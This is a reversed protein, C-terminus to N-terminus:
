VAYVIMAGVFGVFLILFFSALYAGAQDLSTIPNTQARESAEVATLSQGLAAALFFAAITTIIAYLAIIGWDIKLVICSEFIFGMVLAM